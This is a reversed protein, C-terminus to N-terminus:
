TRNMDLKYKTGDMTRSCEMWEATMFLGYELRTGDMDRDHGAWIGTM